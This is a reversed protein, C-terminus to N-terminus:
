LFAALLNGTIQVHGRIIHPRRQNSGLALGPLRHLLPYSKKNSFSCGIGEIAADLDSVVVGIQTITKLNKNKENIVM